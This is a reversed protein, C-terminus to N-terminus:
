SNRPFDNSIINCAIATCGSTRSWKLQAPTAYFFCSWGSQPDGTILLAQHKKNYNAYYRMAENTYAVAEYYDRDLFNREVLKNLERLAITDGADWEPTQVYFTYSTNSKTIKAIGWLLFAFGFLAMVALEPGSFKRKRKM